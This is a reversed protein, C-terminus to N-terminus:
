LHRSLLRELEHAVTVVTTQELDEAIADLAADDLAHRFLQFVSPGTLSRLRGKKGKGGPGTNEFVVPTGDNAKIGPVVFAYGITKRQGRTVEVSIGAQKQDPAIGRGADGIRPKWPLRGGPKRPNDDMVGIRDRIAANTFRVGKTVQVASYRGLGTGKIPASVIAVPKRADTAPEFTMREDIYADPLNIGANMKTRAAREARVTVANVAALNARGLAEDDIKSLSEALAEIQSTDIVVASNNRGAM